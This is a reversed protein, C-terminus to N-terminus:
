RLLWIPSSWACHGDEQEVRLYYIREGRLDGDVIDFAAERGGSACWAVSWEGGECRLLEAKRLPATGVVRGHLRPPFLPFYESGMPLEDAFFELIIRVGTTGYTRRNWLARWIGVDSLEEAWVAALGRPYVDVPHIRENVAYDHRDSGAIVGLRLGAALAEQYYNGYGPPVRDDRLRAPFWGRPDGHTIPFPGDYSESAGHMSYIEVLRQQQNEADWWAYAPPIKMRVFKAWNFPLVFVRRWATHHPIVLVEHGALCRELKWPDDNGPAPWGYPRPIPEHPAFFVGRHGFRHHSWEYGLLAVFRGPQNFERQLERVLEWEEERGSPEIAEMTDHMTIAAFDLGEADRALRYYERPELIGDCLATHAHLDGWFLRMGGQFCAPNSEGTIHGAEVRVRYTGPDAVKCPIAVVGRDEERFAVEASAEMGAPVLLRARGVFARDVDGRGDVARLTLRGRGEEDFSSLVPQLAVAKGGVAELVPNDAILRYIGSAKEDVEVALDVRSPHAPSNWGRSGSHRDGLTILIEDGEQLRDGRVRIRVKRQELYLYALDLAELNVGHRRLFERGLFRLAGRLPFYGQPAVELRAQGATRLTCSYYNPLRPFRNQIPGWGHAYLFVARKGKSGFDVLRCLSVKIGGDESIGGPGCRFRLTVTVPSGEARVMSPMVEAKGPATEPSPRPKRGPRFFEPDYLFDMIGYFLAGAAVAFVGAATKGARKLLKRLGAEM